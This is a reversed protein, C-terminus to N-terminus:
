NYAHDVSFNHKINVLEKMWFLGFFIYLESM